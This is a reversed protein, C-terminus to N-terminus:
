DLPITVYAKASYNSAGKIPGINITGDTAVEGNIQKIYDKGTTDLIYNFVSHYRVLIAFPVTQSVPYYGVPLTVMTLYQPPDIAVSSDISVSIRLELTNNLFNKRYYLDGGAVGGGVPLSVHTETTERLGNDYYYIKTTLPIFTATLTNAGSAITVTRSIKTNHSSGDFYAVPTDVEQISFGYVLGGTLTPLGSVDIDTPFRLIENNYWLWGAKYISGTGPNIGTLAVPTNPTNALSDPLLKAGLMNMVALSNQQIWDLMDQTFPFGGTKTLDLTNM